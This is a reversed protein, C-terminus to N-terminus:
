VNLLSDLDSELSKIAKNVDELMMRNIGSSYLNLEERKKVALLKKYLDNIERDVCRVENEYPIKDKSNM